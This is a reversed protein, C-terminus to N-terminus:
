KGSLKKQLYANTQLTQSRKFLDQATLKNADAIDIKAGYQLLLCARKVKANELANHLATKGSGKKSPDSCSDILKLSADKSQLDLLFEFERCPGHGAALRRFAVALDTTNTRNLIGELTLGEFPTNRLKAHITAEKYNLFYHRSNSNFGYKKKFGEVKETAKGENLSMNSLLDEI